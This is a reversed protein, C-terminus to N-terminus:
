IIGDKEQYTKVLTKVADVIYEPKSHETLISQLQYLIETRGTDVGSLFAMAKDDDYM